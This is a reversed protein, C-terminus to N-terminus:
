AAAWALGAAARRRGHGPQGVRTCDEDDLAPCVVAMTAAVMAVTRSSRGHTWMHLPGAGGKLRARSLPLGRGGVDGGPCQGAADGSPSLPLSPPLACGRHSPNPRRGLRGLPPSALARAERCHDTSLPLAYLNPLVIGESKILRGIVQSIKEQYLPKM